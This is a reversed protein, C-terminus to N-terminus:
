PAPFLASSRGMLWYALLGIWEHTAEDLMALRAGIPGPLWLRLSHGSKYGVPWGIVEWGTARFAGVGRPMHDASTLLIWTAGPAPRVLRKTEIANEWTTRSRSELVLRESAIGLDRFLASAVDAETMQGPLLAGSGGTFVLRATPYRNALAVAATMREAAANLSPIGRDTTIDPELAGGLVIIGDVHTPPDLVRPFRDELPLLASQGLPLLMVLVLGGVGIWLLARGAGRRMGLLLGLVCCALLLSSPRLMLDAFKSIIFTM